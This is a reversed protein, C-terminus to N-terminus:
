GIRLQQGPRIVATSRIGNARCLKTLTTGYKRAIASLTDGPRVVHVVSKKEAAVTTEKVAGGGADVVEVKPANRPISRYAQKFTATTIVVSEDVRREATSHRFLWEYFESLYFARALAGHDFGEMRDFRLLSGGEGRIADAVRQSQGVSVARDATGHMIWLPVRALGEFSRLTSGGCLAAAAAVTEPYTGVFDMTGFGGLSMGVVYVRTTDTRYNTQVWELVNKVKRPSWAGGPNQPAVIMAGIQMGREVANICGYRRVRNLDRGCLSQGHLFVIVPSGALTDVQAQPTYLWFDYGNEVQKRFARLQSFGPVCWAVFLVWLMIKKM